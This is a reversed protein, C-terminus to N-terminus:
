RNRRTKAMPTQIGDADAAVAKCTCLRWRWCGPRAGWVSRGLPGARAPPQLAFPRACTDRKVYIATAIPVVGCLVLMIAALRRSVPWCWTKLGMITPLCRLPAPLLEALVGARAHPLGAGANPHPICKFFRRQFLTKISGTDAFLVAEQGFFARRSRSRRGPTSPPRSRDGLHGGSDFKDTFLDRTLIVINTVPMILLPGELRTGPLVGVVAPILARGHGAHRLKPGRQLQPRLQERRAPPRQVDGGAPDAGAAGMAAPAASHRGTAAPSCLPGSRRPLDHRRHLAPEPGRQAHRHARVIVFKGTILDVAPLADVMLTELTGREREGATLDIAPYIAGTITMIILILPVIQGLISGGVKAPTAVSETPHAAPQHLGTASSASPRLRRLLRSSSRPRPDSEFGAPPSDRQSHRNPGHGPYPCRHRARATRQALAPRAPGSGARPGPRDVEWLVDDPATCSTSRTRRRLVAVDTPRRPRPNKSEPRAIRRIKRAIRTSPRKEVLEEAPHRKGGPHRAPDTDIVTRLWRGVEEAPVPTHGDPAM